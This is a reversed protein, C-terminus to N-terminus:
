RRAAPTADYAEIMLGIIDRASKNVLLVADYGNPFRIVGTSLVPGTANNLEPRDFAGMADSLVLDHGVGADVLGVGRLHLQDAGELGVAALQGEMALVTALTRMWAPAAPGGLEGVDVARSDEGLASVAHVDANRVAGILGRTSASGTCTLAAAAEAAHARRVAVRLLGPADAFRGARVLRDM